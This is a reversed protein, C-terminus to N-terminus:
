CHLTLQYLLLNGLDTTLLHIKVQGPYVPPEAEDLHHQLLLLVLVLVLLLLCPCVYQM